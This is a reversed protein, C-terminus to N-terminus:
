RGTAMFPTTSCSQMHFFITRRGFSIHFSSISTPAKNISYIGFSSYCLLLWSWATITYPCFCYVFGTFIKYPPFLSSCFKGFDFISEFFSESSHVYLRVTHNNYYLFISWIFVSLYKDHWSATLNATCFAISQFCIWIFPIVKLSYCM